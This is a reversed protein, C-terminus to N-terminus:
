FKFTIGARITHHDPDIGSVGLNNFRQRELDTYIYELRLGVHHSIMLEAGGGVQYGWFTDTAVDAGNLTLDMNSWALGATAYVLLAPAVLIGGRARFSGMANVESQLLGYGTATSSKTNGTGIDAELGLVGGGLQWNYGALLTGVAGDQEFTFDGPEEGSRGTGFSRGLTGGLYFGTWRELNAYPREIPPPAYVEPPRVSRPRGLDAAEASSLTLLIAASSGAMRVALPNARM